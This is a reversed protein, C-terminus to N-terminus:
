LRTALQGTALLYNRGDMEPLDLLSKGSTCQGVQLHVICFGSSLVVMCYYRSAKALFYLYYVRNPVEPVNHLLGSEDVDSIIDEEESDENFFVKFTKNKVLDWEKKDRETLMTDNDPM